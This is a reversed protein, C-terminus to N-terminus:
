YVSTYPQIPHHLLGTVKHHGKWSAVMTAETQPNIHALRDIKPYGTPQGKRQLRVHPVPSLLIHISSPKLQDIYLSYQHLFAQLLTM